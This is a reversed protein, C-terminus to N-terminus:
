APEVCDGANNLIWAPSDDIWIDPYIGAASLWPLKAQRGTYYIPCLKGITEPMEMAEEKYRMTCCLVHHGAMVALSIFSSFLQPDKTFTEDYDICIIM